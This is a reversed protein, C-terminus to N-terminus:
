DEHSSTKLLLDLDGYDCGLLGALGQHTCHGFFLYVGRRLAPNNQFSEEGNEAIDEVFPVIVNNLAHSATRAVSSPVNPVCFHIVGHKKFVPDSLTTPRSTEVCGGQDISLDIIVSGPRMKRVMAETIIHPTPQGHVLIAGLVVDASVVYREINYPNALATNITKPLYADVARLRKLDHDMLTVSAGFGNFVHAAAAGATGAGVIVVHSAPIGPVGGLMVGRGGHTTELFRGAIQPVLMGAIESMAKTVPLLHDDDEIIELGVAIIKQQRLLRHIEPNASGLHVVSFLFKGEGLWGCEQITPPMVKVVLDSRAFVEESSFAISGGAERYSDMSFGCGLGADSQVIINLGAASLTHVGAPTLAVRREDGWCEKPIGVIM